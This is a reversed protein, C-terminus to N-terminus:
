FNMALRVRCHEGRLCAPCAVHGGTHLASTRARECGHAGVRLRLSPGTAGCAGALRSRAQHAAASRLCSAHLTLRSRPLLWDLAMTAGGRARAPLGGGTGGSTGDCLSVQPSCADQTHRSAATRSAPLPAHSQDVGLAGRGAALVRTEGPTKAETDRLWPCNNVYFARRVDPCFGAGVGVPLSPLSSVRDERSGVPGERAVASGDRHGAAPSQGPWGAKPFRQQGEGAVTGLLAGGDSWLEGHHSILAAGRLGREVAPVCARAAPSRVREAGVAGSCLAGKGERGRKQGM